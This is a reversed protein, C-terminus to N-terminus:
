HYLSRTVSSAHSKQVVCHRTLGDGQLHLRRVGDVVHLSLDLVLFADRRILLTQDERTLLEFVAAREGVVVDLLLGSEVQHQAQTTTTLLTFLLGVGLRLLDLVDVLLDLKREQLEVLNVVGTLNGAESALARGLRAAGTDEHRVVEITVVATLAGHSVHEFVLLRQTDKGRVQRRRELPVEQLLIQLSHRIILLICEYRTRARKV